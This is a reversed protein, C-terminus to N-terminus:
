GFRRPTKVTSKTSSGEKGELSELGALCMKVSYETENLFVSENQRKGPLGCDPAQKLDGGDERELRSHCVRVGGYKRGNQVSSYIGM